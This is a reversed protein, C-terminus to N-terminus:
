RQNPAVLLAAALGTAPSSHRIAQFASLGLERNLRYSQRRLSISTTLELADKDVAVALGSLRAPRGEQHSDDVFTETNSPSNLSAVLDSARVQATLTVEKNPLGRLYEGTDMFIFYWM